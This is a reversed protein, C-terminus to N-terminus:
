VYYVGNVHCTHCVQRRTQIKLDGVLKEQSHDAREGIFLPAQSNM